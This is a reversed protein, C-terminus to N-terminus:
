AFTTRPPHALSGKGNCIVDINVLCELFSLCLLRDRLWMPLRPLLQVLLHILHVTHTVGCEGQAHVNSVGRVKTKMLVCESESKITAARSYYRCSRTSWAQDKQRYSPRPELGCSSLSIPFSCRWHRMMKEPGGLNRRVEASSQEFISM